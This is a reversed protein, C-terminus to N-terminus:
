FPIQDLEEASIEFNEDSKDEIIENTENKEVESLNKETASSGPMFRINEAILGIKTRNDGNRTQWSDQKLRGDIFVRSGKKLYKQCNEAVRNWASVDLYLVEKKAMPNNVAITFACLKYNDGSKLEPDKTLNGVCIFKNIM